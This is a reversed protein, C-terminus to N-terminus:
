QKEALPSPEPNLIRGPITHLHDNILGMTVVAITFVVMQQWCRRALLPRKLRFSFYTAPGIFWMSSIFIWFTAAGRSITPDRDAVSKGLAYALIILGALIAFILDDALSLEM